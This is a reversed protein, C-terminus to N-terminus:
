RGQIELQNILTRLQPSPAAAYAVRIAAAVEDTDQQYTHPVASSGAGPGQDIGSTIPQAPYSTPSDIPPPPTKQAAAMPASGAIDELQQNEGYPMGTVPRPTQQEQPM